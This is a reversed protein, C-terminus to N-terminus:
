FPRFLRDSWEAGSWRELLSLVSCLRAPSLVSSVVLVGFREREVGSESRESASTSERSLAKEKSDLDVM